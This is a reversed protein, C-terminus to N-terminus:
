QPELLGPIADIEVRRNHRDVLPVIKKVFPVLITKSGASEIPTIELLDTSGTIISCITGIQKGDTTFASMGVLEEVWFEEEELPLLQEKTTFLNAGELHEVATRDNYENFKLLLMRKDVRVSRVTLIAPAELPALGAAYQVRVDHLDTLLEPNNTSPTVKVEGALAQFGVVVGVPFDYNELGVDQRSNTKSRREM